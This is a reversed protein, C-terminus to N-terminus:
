APDKGALLARHYYLGDFIAVGYDTVFAFTADPDIFRRVLWASGARDIHVGARTVWNM